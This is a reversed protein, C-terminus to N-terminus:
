FFGTGLVVAFWASPGLHVLCMLEPKLPRIVNGGKATWTQWNRNGRSSLDRPLVEGGVRVGRSTAPVTLPGRSLMGSLTEVKGTRVKSGWGGKEKKIWQGKENKTKEGSGTGIFARRAQNPHALLLPLVPSSNRFFTLFLVFTMGMRSVVPWAHMCNSSDLPRWPM